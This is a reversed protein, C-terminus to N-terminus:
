RKCVVESAQYGRPTELLKFEVEQVDKLTRYGEMQIASYHVFVDKGGDEQIFGYGKTENFWKVKGTRKM